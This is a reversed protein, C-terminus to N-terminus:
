AADRELLKPKPGPGAIIAQNVVQSALTARAYANVLKRVEGPMPNDRNFPGIAAVLKALEGIRDVPQQVAGGSKWFVWLKEIMQGSTCGKPAAAIIEEVTKSSISKIGWQQTPGLNEAAM